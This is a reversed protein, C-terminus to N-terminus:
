AGKVEKAYYGFPRTVTTFPINLVGADPVILVYREGTQLPDRYLRYETGWETTVIEDYDGWSLGETLMDRTIGVPVETAEYCLGTDSYFRLDEKEDESPSSYLDFHTLSRMQSSWSMAANGLFCTYTFLLTFVIVFITILAKKM